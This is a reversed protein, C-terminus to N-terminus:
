SDQEEKIARESARIQAFVVAGKASDEAGLQVDDDSFDDVNENHRVYAAVARQIEAHGLEYIVTKRM